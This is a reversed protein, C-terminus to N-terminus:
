GATAWSSLCYVPAVLTRAAAECSQQVRMVPRHSRNAPVPARTRGCWAVPAGSPHAASRVSAAPCFRDHLFLRLSCQRIVAAPVSLSMDSSAWALAPCSLRLHASGQATAWQALEAASSVSKPHAPRWYTGKTSGTNSGSYCVHELRTSCAAVACTSKSLMEPTLRRCRTSGSSASRRLLVGKAMTWALARLSLAAYLGLALCPQTLSHLTLSCLMRAQQLHPVTQPSWIM